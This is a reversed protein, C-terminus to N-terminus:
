NPYYAPKINTGGKLRCDVCIKPAYFYFVRGLAIGYDVDFLLSDGSALAINARNNFKADPGPHAGSISWTRGEGLDNYPGLSCDDMYYPKPYAFTNVRSIGNNAVLPRLNHDNRKLDIQKKAITSASIFGVVKESPKTVCHINGVLFSPQGDFISGLQETNAKLNQYYEFAEKTLAYQNLQIIYTYAIKQSSAVINTIRQQKIFDQTLKASSGIIIDTSNSTRYCSSIDDSGGLVIPSIVGNKYKYSATYVPVYKWTDMYDWRYYRTNNTADHADTYFTVEDAATQKIYISDIPPTVKM